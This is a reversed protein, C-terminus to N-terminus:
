ARAALREVLVVLEDLDIIEHDPPAFTADWSAGTRNM